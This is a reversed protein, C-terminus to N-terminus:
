RRETVRSMRWAAKTGRCWFNDRRTGRRRRSFITGSVEEDSVSEHFYIGMDMSDYEKSLYEYPFPPIAVTVVIGYGRHFSLDYSRGDAVAGLFEGWPSHHLEAQLATSPTGFRSTAELPYIVGESVICNIDFDGRFGSRRLFPLLKALTEQFLRCSEDEEYWILTGMEPTKPGVGNPMLSKHEINIEIPGVWDHGNFYRGVGVEIGSAKQQLHLPHDVSGQYKRLISAVDAGNKLQGVYNSASAHKNGNNKVVWQLGPFMEIHALAEEATDFNFSPVNRIGHDLFVKQGFQRDEELRDGLESGGVVRYGEARLEDQRKGYGVDDFVILGDKGVWDLENEWDDTKVVINDYCGRLEKEEIFLKVEHGELMLLPCLETAILERSVFLIRM